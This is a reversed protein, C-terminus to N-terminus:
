APAFVKDGEGYSQGQVWVAEDNEPVTSSVLDIANPIVIKM